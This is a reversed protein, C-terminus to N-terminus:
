ASKVLRSLLRKELGRWRWRLPWGTSRMLARRARPIQNSKWWTREGKEIAGRMPAAEQTSPM